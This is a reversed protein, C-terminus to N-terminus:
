EGSDSSFFLHTTTGVPSSAGLSFLSKSFRVTSTPTCSEFVVIAIYKSSEDFCM